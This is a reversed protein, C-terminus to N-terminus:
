CCGLRMLRVCSKPRGTFARKDAIMWGDYLQARQDLSNCRGIRSHEDCTLAATSLFDYGM